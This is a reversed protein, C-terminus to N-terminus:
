RKTGGNTSAVSNLRKVVGETLDVGGSLVAQKLFVIDVHRGAAEAKIASDISVELDNELAQARAQVRKVEDDIQSQLRRQLGELEAPPKKAAKAEEYQKNSEEILKHIKDELRTLIVSNAAAPPTPPFWVM